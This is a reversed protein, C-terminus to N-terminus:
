AEVTEVELFDRPDADGLLMAETREAVQTALSFNSPEVNHTAYATLVQSFGWGNSAAFPGYANTQLEYYRQLKARHRQGLGLADMIMAAEEPSVEVNRLEQWRQAVEGVFHDRLQDFGRTMVSELAEDVSGVHRFSTKIISQNARMGNLCVMVLGMVDLGVRRAGGHGNYVELQLQVDEPVSTGWRTPRTGLNVAIDPFRYRRVFQTGNRGLLQTGAEVFPIDSDRMYQEMREIMEGNQIVKYDQSVIDIFAGDEVRYLAKRTNIAEHNEDVRSDVPREEVTYNWSIQDNQKRTM